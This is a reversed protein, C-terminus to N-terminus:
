EPQSAKKLLSNIQDHNLGYHHAIEHWVTRKVQNKLEGLDHCTELFPRKFITIKDPLVLNYNNGRSTLPIGEYLGYLTIGNYLHLRVAQQPSPEDEVLIAVNKMNDTFRKPLSDIAWSVIDRFATDSVNLM